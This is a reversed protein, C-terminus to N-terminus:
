KKKKSIGFIDPFKGTLFAYCGQRPFVIRIVFLNNAIFNHVGNNATHFSSNEFFLKRM